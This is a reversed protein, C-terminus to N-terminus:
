KHKHQPVVVIPTCPSGKAYAVDKYKVPQDTKGAVCIGHAVPIPAPAQTVHNVGLTASGALLAAGLIAGVAKAM